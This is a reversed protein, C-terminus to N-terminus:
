SINKQQLLTIMKKIVPYIPGLGRSMNELNDLDEQKIVKLLLISAVYFLIFLTGGILLEVGPILQFMNTCIRTAFGASTAALITKFAIVYDPELNLNNRIWNLGYTFSLLSGLGSAIILGTVDIRPILIFALPISVLFNILTQHFSIRTKKLMILSSASISGLGIFSFTLMYLRMYTTAYPYGQGYLVTILEPAIAICFALIPYIIFGSYKISYVFTTRLANEQKDLKSFLPFIVTSLPVTFFTVLVSFRAAAQYNGIYEPTIHLALLLNTINSNLGSLLNSFFLPYSYVLMLKACELHTFGENEPESRWITVVMVVGFLGTVIQSIVNGSVVGLAGWGFFVLVPGAISRLLNYLIEVVSRLEMRGYGVLIANATNVLTQGILVFSYLKILPILEPQGFTAEALFTSSIYTIFTLILGVTFNIIAGTEIIIKRFQSQDDFRYQSLYKVLASNIGINLLIAAISTPISAISIIGFGTAGLVRAIFIVGVFQILISLANGMM